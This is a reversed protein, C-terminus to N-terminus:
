QPEVATATPGKEDGLERLHRLIIRLDQWPQYDRAYLFDLRRRATAPLAQGGKGFSPSLVSPALDPLEQADTAYGVWTMRGRLVRLINPWLGGPRHQLVLQLPYSLLLLSATLLDIFRKNRRNMPHQIQYAVDLTYVEGTDNRSSSGIITSGKEALTKYSVESGLLEMWYMLDTAAVDRLCFVLEDAGFSRQLQGLQPLPGLYAQEQLSAATGVRGLYNKQISTQALLHRVREAEDASGVIIMNKILEPGLQLRGDRLLWSLGRLGLTGMIAWIAGLLILARSSRYEANLFGYIAAIIVTGLLLGRVHRWVTQQRDYAGSFYLSLLWILTYLPANVLLFRIGYYDPDRFHYSAWFDKLFYLGLLVIAADLLPWYARKLFNSLLTLLARLYIAGRLMLIFLRAQDGGFHKRAFIIMAQYFARVYNLSGRKTSEGKYHIIQTDSLYHNEYGGLAIRYSLDIDEGYMFFAEDLLGVEELATRRLLMYAGSLVEVQHNANKDLYGLHYRNFFRSRPFLSSLGFTKCFAVFPSPFGRKSEPLFTGSGDLMKLGLGGVKPHAEMYDLCIRFTDEAVVTDPNLLLAYRGKSRRIAQNNAISFGPNNTNAILQVQPFQERLMDVSGDRSNNDVVWVDVALGEAAKFVSLLCQQLFYKVNYNVIIVSLQTLRRESM